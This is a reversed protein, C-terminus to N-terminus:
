LTQGQSVTKIHHLKHTMTNTRTVCSLQTQGQSVIKINHYSISLQTQEQSVIKMYRLKRIM